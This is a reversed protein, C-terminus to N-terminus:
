RQSMLCVVDVLVVGTSADFDLAPSFSNVVYSLCASLRVCLMACISKNGM